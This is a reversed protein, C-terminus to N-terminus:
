PSVHNIWSRRWRRRIVFSKPIAKRCRAVKVFGTRGIDFVEPLVRRGDVRSQRYSTGRSFCAFKSQSNPHELRRLPNIREIKPQKLRKLDRVCDLVMSCTPGVGRRWDLAVDSSEGKPRGLERRIGLAQDPQTLEDHRAVNPNFEIHRPESSDMAGDEHFGFNIDPRESDNNKSYRGQPKEIPGHRNPNCRKYRQAVSREAPPADSSANGLAHMSVCQFINSQPAVKPTIPANCEAGLGRSHRGIGADCRGPAPHYKGASKGISTRRCCVLRQVGVAIHQVINIGTQAIRVEPKDHRQRNIRARTATRARQAPTFAALPGAHALLTRSRFHVRAIEVASCLSPSKSVESRLYRATM